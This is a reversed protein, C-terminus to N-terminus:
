VCGVWNMGTGDNSWSALRRAWSQHDHARVSNQRLLLKSTSTIPDSNSTCQISTGRATQNKREGGQKERCVLYTRLMSESEHALLSPSRGFMIPAGISHKYGLFAFHKRDNSGALQSLSVHEIINNCKRM